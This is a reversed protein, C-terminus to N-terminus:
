TWRPPDRGLPGPATTRRPTVGDIAGPARVRRIPGFASDAAELWRAIEATSPETTLKPTPSPLSM